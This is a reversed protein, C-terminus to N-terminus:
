WTNTEHSETGEEKSVVTDTKYRSVMHKKWLWGVERLEEIGCDPSGSAGPDVGREM